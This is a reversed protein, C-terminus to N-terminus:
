DENVSGLDSLHQDVENLVRGIRAVSLSDDFQAGALIALAQLAGILVDGDKFDFIIAAADRRIHLFTQEVRKKSRLIRARAQAKGDGRADHLLMIARELVLCSRPM